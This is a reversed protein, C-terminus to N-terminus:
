GGLNCLNEMFDNFAGVGGLDHIAIERNHTPEPFERPSTLAVTNTRTAQNRNPIENGM